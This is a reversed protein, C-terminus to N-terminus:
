TRSSRAQPSSWPVQLTSARIYGSASMGTNLHTDVYLSRHPIVIFQRMIEHIQSAFAYQNDAAAIDHVIESRLDSYEELRYVQGEIYFLRLKM